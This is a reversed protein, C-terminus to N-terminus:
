NLIWKEFNECIRSRADHHVQTIYFWFSARKKIQGLSEEVHKTKTLWEDDPPM